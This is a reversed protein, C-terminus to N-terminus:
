KVVPVKQWGSSETFERAGFCWIIVKKKDLYGPERTRRLLNVRAPTAGSGRVAVVDVAFGLELALQDPLGAGRAQMDDGAHFILSHSDGLLVVPSARDAEVPKLSTGSRTGVFRLPITERAPANSGLERWLDGTLELPKTEEDFKQKAVGDYWSRSRLEKALEQAALVCAQGSWHTDQKCYLQQGTRAKLFEPVWDIVKVGNRGLVDYFAQHAADLRAPTAGPSVKDSAAEPYIIAKPPVPVFLLEIGAKDLQAKFDLIAPLPDAQERKAARSAKIAAEGWFPGAGLHRLEPAFFMWGEKGLVTTTGSKEAAEARAACDARFEDAMDSAHTPRAAFSIELILLVIPLFHLKM